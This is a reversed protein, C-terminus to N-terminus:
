DRMRCACDNSQVGTRVSKLTGRPSWRKRCECSNWLTPFGLPLDTVADTEVAGTEVAGTEVAGTEVAGTEVAGTEVAGTEVAGTEVAGTEVAGTEVAGSEMSQVREGSM